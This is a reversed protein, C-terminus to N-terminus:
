KKEVVWINKFQLPNGHGQLRLVGPTGEPEDGKKNLARAGGTVGAIEANDHVIVGNHKLTIRAKKVVKDGERVANTFEVDYTQWQLPPLCMNVKPSLRTYVGGCEDSKGELGFSDLIQVEYQDVQYFGSNGRGQGRADPRFPLLFEVHATYNNFKRKTTIDGGDTNLFSTTKDVRGSNWEDKSSGDFLVVAGEPPKAGLTPNKREIKKLEVSFTARKATLTNGAITATFEDHGTPPFKATASFEMPSQALYKRKGTTPVFVVKNGEIKGDMLARQMDSNGAGPLGGKYIVAQFAGNGLAIVQCGVDEKDAEVKGLYEGQFKFDAPLTPDSADTWVEKQKEGKKETKKDGTQARAALLTFGLCATLTLITIVALRKALM